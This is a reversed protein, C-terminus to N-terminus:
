RVDFGLHNIVTRERGDSPRNQVGGEAEIYLTTSGGGDLNLADVAGADHLIRAMEAGTLGLAGPRRGDAVLIILERGGATLGVATRPHRVLAFGEFKPEIRGNRILAPRGSVAAVVAPAPAFVPSPPKAQTELIRASGDAFFALTQSCGNYVSDWLAPGGATVGCSGTASFFNANIAIEAGTRRAFESVASWAQHEATAVPRLRPTALAIRVIHYDQDASVHHIHGVGPHPMSVTDRAVVPPALACVLLLAVFARPPPIV